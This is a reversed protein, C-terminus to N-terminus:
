VKEKTYVGLLGNPRFLLVLIMVFFAFADKYGTSVYAAGLGEIQGLVLGGVVAGFINGIGGLISVVFAKIVTSLGLNFTIIKYYVGVMTGAAAALAASLAFTQLRLRDVNIGMLNAAEPNLAIARMALGTKTRYVLTYLLLMILVTLGFILIQLPAITVGALIIRNPLIDSPFARPVTGWVLMIINDLVISLGYICIIQNEVTANRLPFYGTREVLIGAAATCILSFLFALPFPFNLYVVATFAFYAGLTYISGHAFNIMGLVGYVLTYGIAVLAYVGGITLGNMVQQIFM